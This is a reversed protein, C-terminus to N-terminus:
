LKLLLGDILSKRKTLASRLAEWTKPGVVGDAGLGYASQFSRVANYTKTGFDGDASLQYGLADLTSQLLKVEDGKSGMQLMAHEKKDTSPTAPEVPEPTPTVPTVSGSSEAYKPRAYGRIQGNGVSLTRRAVSDKYNGEITTIKNGSVSEVIGIHDSYGDNPQTKTDWNFVIIDGPKPTITGDEIWIGANKFKKVHEEVGCETGGILDVADCDIFLASVCTDCWQDTYKVKYSRALPKHANYIDIIPKHSSDYENRGLWSRAKDLITKATVAMKFDEEKKEDSDSFDTYFVDMDVNGNIGPVKGKSSYQWGIGWSPRLREQITGNDDKEYPYSALWMDYRDKVDTPLYNKVWYENAYIAFKYGAAEIIKQFVEIIYGIQERTCNKAQENWELDLFVPYDLHRGNLVKVVNEAETRSSDITLAYSYKYVGVKIRAATAGEYNHEFSSDIGYKETVRLIAFSVGTVKSWDPTGNWSSVDIGYYEKM